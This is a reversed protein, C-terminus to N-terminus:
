RLNELLENFNDIYYDAMEKKKDTLPASFDDYVACTRMGAHIGALIGNPIDEFILCKEPAVSMRDAAKLYIDPAPKGKTIDNGTIITDFIGIIDLSSLCPEVLERSNSTAIGLKLEKDKLMNLFEYAGDKLSIENQYKDFAMSHWIDKIEEASEPLSFLEKFRIATESLSMGEIERSLGSPIALNRSGLFEVDIDKWVQMSDLLTGDLDFIVAEIDTLM